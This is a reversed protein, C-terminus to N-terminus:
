AAHETGYLRRFERRMARLIFPDLTRREPQQDGLRYRELVLRGSVAMQGNVTGQTKLLLTAKDSKLIEVEVRLTEGPEVFDAFKVNRVEKLLVVSSAFDESVRVLWMAAQYMAELMLVGPMVPFRPFHDKLYDEEAHLTKIAALRVGPEVEVIRDLMRFRM